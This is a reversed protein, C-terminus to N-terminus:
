PKFDFFKTLNDASRTHARHHLDRYVMNNESLTYHSSEFVYIYVAKVFQHKISSDACFQLFFHVKPCNSSWLEPLFCPFKGNSSNTVNM